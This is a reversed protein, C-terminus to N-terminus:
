FRRKFVKFIKNKLLIGRIRRERMKGMRKEKSKLRIGNIREFCKRMMM